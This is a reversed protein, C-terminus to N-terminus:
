LLDDKTLIMRVYKQVAADDHPENHMKLVAEAWAAVNEYQVDNLWWEDKLDNAAWEIAPGDERHMTGHLFWMKTGDAREIAPAGERHRKGHLWWQKGGNAWEVAPADERHKKGHMRWEKYGDAHEIAPAGERHWAGHLWWEKDGNNREIAPGDIRHLRMHQDLWMSGDSDVYKQSEQDAAKSEAYLEYIKTADSM